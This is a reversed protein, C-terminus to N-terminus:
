AWVQPAVYHVLPLGAGQLRRALRFTFGPSDITVLIDPRMAQVHAATEAIRRLLGRARPLVELLGMVSLERMPFLSALGAATMAPGGVGSFRIPLGTGLLATMLEAGLADGSAEGAVLMVHRADATV